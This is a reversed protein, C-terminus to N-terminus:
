INSFTVSYNGASLGETGAATSLTSSNTAAAADPGPSVESPRLFKVHGDGLLFNSGTKSHQAPSVGTANLAQQTYLTGNAGLQGTAYSAAAPYLADFGDGAADPNGNTSTLPSVTPDATAGTVEFLLVTSAPAGMLAITTSSASALLSPAAGGTTLGTQFNSNVGYSIPYETEGNTPGQSTSDDPCKYLGTAKAYPYVESSWGSGGQNNAAQVTATGGPAGPATQGTKIVTVPWTEDYDQVYQLFALGLQKENSACTIQRAKERAQAFVPFLIAALIAIIAIVVLLEILTFGQTRISRM